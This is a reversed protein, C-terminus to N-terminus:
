KNFKFIQNKIIQEDTWSHETLSLKYKQFSNVIKGDYCVLVDPFVVDKTEEYIKDMGDLEILMKRLKEIEKNSLDDSDLYYVKKVDNDEAVTNVTTILSKATENSPTGIFVYTYKEKGIASKFDDFDVKDMVHELPLAGNYANYIRRKENPILLIIAIIVAILVCLISIYASKGLKVSDKKYAM